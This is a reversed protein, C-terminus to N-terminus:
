GRLREVIDALRELAVHRDRAPAVLVAVVVREDISSVALTGEPADLAVHYSAVSLGSLRAALTSLAHVEAAAAVIGAEDCTQPMRGALLTGSADLLVVGLVDGGVCGDVFRQLAEEPRAPALAAEAAAARPAPTAPRGSAAVAVVRSAEAYDASRALLSRVRAPLEELLRGDKQMYDSAGLGLAQLAVEESGHATLFLVPTEPHRARLKALLDLGHGDPLRYDLLAVDFREELLAREAEAHTRARTAIPIGARAHLSRTILEALDDHDEVLIVRASAREHRSEGPGHM